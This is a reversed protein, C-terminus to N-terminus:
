LPQLWLLNKTSLESPSFHSSRDCYCNPQLKKQSKKGNKKPNKGTKKPKITKIPIQLTKCSLERIQMTNNNHNSPHISPHISPHNTPQNTLQNTPQKTPQNTAQNTPQNTNTPQPQQQPQHNHNHNNNNTTTPQQNNNTTPQQQQPPQNTSNTTTTTTGEKRGEKRAGEKWWFVPFFELFFRSFIGLFIARWLLIISLSPPPGCRFIWIWVFGPLILLFPYLSTIGFRPNFGHYKEPSRLTKEDGM